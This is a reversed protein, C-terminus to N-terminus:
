ARRTRDFWARVITLNVLSTIHQSYKDEADDLIYEEGKALVERVSMEDRSDIVPSYVTKTSGDEYTATGSVQYAYRYLMKRATYADAPLGPDTQTVPM